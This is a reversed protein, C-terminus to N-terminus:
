KYSYVKIKFDDTLLYLKKKTLHLQIFKSNPMLKISSIYTGDLIEYVDFIIGNDISTAPVSLIYLQEGLLFTRLNTDYNRLARDKSGGGQMNFSMELKPNTERDITTIASELRGKNYFYIHNFYRPIHVFRDHELNILEGDLVSSFTFSGKPKSSEDIISSVSYKDKEGITYIDLLDIKGFDSKLCIIKNNGIPCIKLPFSSNSLQFTSVKKGFITVRKASNDLVYIDGNSTISFETAFNFEGPGNGKRGYSGIFKGSKSYIKISRSMQDLLYINGSADTSIRTPFNMTTDDEGGFEFEKNIQKILIKREGIQQKPKVKFYIKTDVENINLTFFTFGQQGYCETVNITFYILTLLFIANVFCCKIKM